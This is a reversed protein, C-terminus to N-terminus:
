TEPRRPVTLRSRCQGHRPDQHAHGPLLKCMPMCMCIHMHMYMHMYMCMCMCMDMCMYMHMLPHIMHMYCCARVWWGMDMDMDLMTCM